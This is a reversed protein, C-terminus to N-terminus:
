YIEGWLGKCPNNYQTNESFFFFFILLGIKYSFIVTPPEPKSRIFSVSSFFLQIVQIIIIILFVHKVLEVRTNNLLTLIIFAWINKLANLDTGPWTADSHSLSSLLFLFAKFFYFLFSSILSVCQLKPQSRSIFPPHSSSYLSVPLCLAAIHPFSLFSWVNECKQSM